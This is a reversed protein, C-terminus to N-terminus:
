VVGCWVVSYWVVGWLVGFKLGGIVCIWALGLWAVRFM